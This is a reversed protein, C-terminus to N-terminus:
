GSSRARMAVLMRSAMAALSSCQLPSYRNRLAGVSFIGVNEFACQDVAIAFAPGDTKDTREHIDGRALLKLILQATRLLHFCEALQGATNGMVEIIKEGGNEAVAIEEELIETQFTDYGIVNRFDSPAAPRAEASM